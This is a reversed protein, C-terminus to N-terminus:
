QEDSVITVPGIGASKLEAAFLDADGVVVTVLDDPRIRNAASADLAAKDVELIQQRLRDFHDDTFDHVVVDAIGSAVSMVGAFNIPFVGARYARAQELEEPQVGGSQMREIEAILDAL